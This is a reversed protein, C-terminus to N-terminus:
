RPARRTDSRQRRWAEIMRDGAGCRLGDGACASVAM